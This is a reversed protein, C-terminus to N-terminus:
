FRLADDPQSPFLSENSAPQRTTAPAARRASRYNEPSQRTMSGVVPTDPSLNAAAPYNYSSPLMSRRPYQAGDLLANWANSEFGINRRSGVGIAPFGNETFGLAKFKEFDAYTEILWEKFPVGRQRLMQRAQECPGCDRSVYLSVPHSTVANRLELPFDLMPDTPQAAMTSSFAGRPRKLVEAGRPPPQDSYVVRGDQDVWKYQAASAPMVALGGVAAVLLASATLVKM